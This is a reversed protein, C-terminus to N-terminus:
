YLNDRRMLLYGKSISAHSLGSPLPDSLGVKCRIFTNLEDILGDREEGVVAGRKGAVPDKGCTFIAQPLDSYTGMAMMGNALEVEMRRSRMWFLYSHLFFVRDQVESLQLEVDKVKM